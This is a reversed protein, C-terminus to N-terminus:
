PSLGRILTARSLQSSASPVSRAIDSRTAEPLQWPHVPDPKGTGNYPTGAACRYRKENRHSTDSLVPVARHRVSFRRAGRQRRIDSEIENRGSNRCCTTNPLLDCSPLRRSQPLPTRCTLRESAWRSSRPLTSADTAQNAAVNPGGGAPDVVQWM